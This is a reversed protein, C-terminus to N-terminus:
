SQECNIISTIWVSIIRISLNRFCRFILLFVVEAGGVGSLDTASPRKLRTTVGSTSFIMVLLKPYLHHHYHPVTQCGSRSEAPRSGREGSSSNIQCQHHHFHHHSTSSIRHYASALIAMLTCRISTYFLFLENKM